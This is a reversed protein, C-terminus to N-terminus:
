WGVGLVGGAPDFPSLISKERSVEARRGLLALCGEFAEDDGASIGSVFFFAEREGDFAVAFNDDEKGDTFDVGRPGVPVGERDVLDLGKELTAGVSVEREECRRVLDADRVLYKALVAGALAERDERRVGVADRVEVCFFGLLLGAM